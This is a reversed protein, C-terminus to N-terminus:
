PMLDTLLDGALGTISVPDISNSIVALTLKKDTNIYDFASYIGIAGYHGVGGSLELYMGYGYHVDPSYDTTMAKFSDASIAKGSSLANIWATLDAANSIIDGAGKTLGPQTDVQKYVNGNAWEPSSSLECILGTHNMGLPAFFNERLFTVYEKGSVQQVIDALLFYNINAYEFATDPESTLKQRFVWDKIIAVNEAETHSDTVDAGSEETIEPIGSRMSLLNHLTIKKGQAYDPYYKDLTDKVSLKGQEQLLLVAAACFQKSVSGIPLPTDLTIKNGNETTGKAFSAVPTGNEVAYIVGEFENAKITEEMEKPVEPNATAATAETVAETAAETSSTTEAKSASSENKGNACGSVACVIMASLIVALIKKM